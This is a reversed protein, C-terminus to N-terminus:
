SGAPRFIGSLCVILNKMCEIFNLAINNGNVAENKRTAVRILQIGAWVVLFCCEIVGRDCGRTIRNESSAKDGSTVFQFIIRITAVPQLHSFTEPPWHHYLWHCRSPISNQITTETVRSMSQVVKKTQNRRLQNRLTDSSSIYCPWVM